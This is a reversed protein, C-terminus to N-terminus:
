LHTKWVTFAASAWFYASFSVATWLLDAWARQRVRMRWAALAAVPFAPVLGALFGYGMMIALERCLYAYVGCLVALGVIAARSHWRARKMESGGGYRAGAAVLATAQFAVFLAVPWTFVFEGAARSAVVTGGAGLLFAAAAFTARARALARDPRKRRAALWALLALAASPALVGLMSFAFWRRMHALTPAYLARGSWVPQARDRGAPRALSATATGRQAATLENPDGLWLCAARTHNRVFLRRGYLAPATWCVEGPFVPARALEEYAEPSARALILDGSETWLILKGDAAVVTTHGTRDTAWRVHGTALDLCKFLGAAAREPRPQLDHLDFGYVHGDLVLSSFVDNSLVDSHWVVEPPGAGLRLVTAGGRFAAATLLYPEEYLPWAAHEDYGDSLRHHWLIRGDSPDFGVVVNQLYVVIQRRGGATIPFAPSYSAPWDGAQWVVAGDDASLAVVAAGKGGVPVFVKGDEVLPSCAYGYETGRGKFTETVNVSWLMRGDRARVCGVLGLAGAVYVRGGEVTPTAMPGPWTSDPKWPWGYRCQWIRRGTAADLCVVHQGSRWQVQTYLRDGVAAFGSFGQGLDICWLVPPGEAPWSQALGTEASVATCAPGRLHPWDAAPACASLAAVVLVAAICPARRRM